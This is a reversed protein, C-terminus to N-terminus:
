LETHQKLHNLLDEQTADKKHLAEVVTEDITNRMVLHNIIVGHNQGQRHLRGNLQQYHELSWPISYYVLNHGGSQLNVGHALSAPHCLLIPIKGENWQDVYQSALNVPTRGAIVPVDGLTKQIEALEGKFQIACLIPQGAATEILEQLRLLKINHIHKWKHHKDYIGGQIFMRLKMGLVATNPVEIESDLLDLVFSKEFERYKKMLAPTLDCKIYNYSIEPMDLYDEADLRFTMPSVKDYVEQTYRQDFNYLTVPMGPYSFTKCYNERFRTINEGLAEGADLLYYQSWLDGLSNPAPTASMLVRINTWFMSMKQLLKFRQTSHSKIMSAEDYIVMRKRWRGSQKALWPLGEYNILIIDHKMAEDLNKDPGHMIYYSLHPTWKEIEDPWTSIITRLPGMVLAPQQAKEIAMLSILTKGMGLDIALYVRQKDLIFQTARLQYEHPKLISM